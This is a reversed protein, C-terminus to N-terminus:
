RRLEALFNSTAFVECDTTYRTIARLGNAAIRYLSYNENLLDYFDRFYTRSDINCPGFEFQIFRIKKEEIM